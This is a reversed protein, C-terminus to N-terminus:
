IGVGARAVSGTDGHHVRPTCSLDLGHAKERKTNSFSGKSTPISGTSKHLVRDHPANRLPALTPPTLVARPHPRACSTTYAPTTKAGRGRCPKRGRSPRLTDVGRPR